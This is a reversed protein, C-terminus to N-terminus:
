LKTAALIENAGQAILDDALQDGLHAATEM